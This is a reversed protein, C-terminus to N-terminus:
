KANEKIIIVSFYSAQDTTGTVNFEQISEFLQQNAMTCRSVIKTQESLGRQELLNLIRRMNQGSKMIVKNGPLDLCKEINEDCCAPIIYLAQNGECLPIKFTAAAASFSTIGPIIETEFGRASVIGDIYHYTSYISPDGLTILGVSNGSELITCIQNAVHLRQQKRKEEDREMSFRCELIEKGNLYKEVISLATRDSSEIAPVAIVECQGIIRIAKLTLLESDGPGTGIGYLKGNMKKKM